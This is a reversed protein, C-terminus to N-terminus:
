LAVPPQFTAVAGTRGPPYYLTVSVITDAPIEEQEDIQIV